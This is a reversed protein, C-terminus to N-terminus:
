GRVLLVVGSVLILAFVIRRFRVPDVRSFLAVGLLVGIAAPVAFTLTDTTVEDTILGARWYGALILSQNVFFFAQLNAKITRPSWPQTTAYVIVPPGPTGVAGGLVGALLGAGFGWQGGVLRGPYLGRWELLAVLVLMAGILRNIVSAPASALVWVGLPTGVVTGLLLYVLQRPTVENRLQILVSLTFFVAYVTLVVIATTPPMVYPLFSLAVLGIGFGALGQVFSGLAIAFAAVVWEWSLM